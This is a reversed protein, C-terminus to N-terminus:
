AHLQGGRFLCYAVISKEAAVLSLEANTFTCHEVVNRSGVLVVRENTFHEGRIVGRRITVRERTVSVVAPLAALFMFSRRNM